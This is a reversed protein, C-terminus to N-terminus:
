NALNHSDNADSFVTMATSLKTQSVHSVNVKELENIEGLNALWTLQLRTFDAWM